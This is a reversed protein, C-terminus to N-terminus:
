TARRGDARETRLRAVDAEAAVYGFSPWQAAHNEVIETLIKRAQDGRGNYLHWNAVGYGKTTGELGSGALQSEPTLEGKYMLLLQHYSANEIIDMDRSIPALLADAEAKRGLRRLTMYYWHTTAVLMDNNKSVAM